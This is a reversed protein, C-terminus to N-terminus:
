TEMDFFCIRRSQFFFYTERPLFPAILILSNVDFILFQTFVELIETFHPSSPLPFNFADYEHVFFCNLLAFVDKQENAEPRPCVGGIDDHPHCSTGFLM